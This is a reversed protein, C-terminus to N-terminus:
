KRGGKKQSALLLALPADVIIKRGIQTIAPKIVESKKIRNATAVSCGFLEAIGPIGYVTKPVHANKHETQFNRILELFEAVTLESLFRRQNEM